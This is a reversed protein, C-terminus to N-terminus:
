GQDEYFYLDEGLDEEGETFDDDPVDFINFLHIPFYLNIFIDEPPINYDYHKDMRTIIDQILCATPHRPRFILIKNVLEIPINM